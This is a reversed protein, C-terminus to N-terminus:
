ACRGREQRQRARCGSSVRPRPRRPPVEISFSVTRTAAFDEPGIVTGDPSTGFALTGAVDSPLAERLSQTSLIPGAAGRGRGGGARGRRRRRHGRAPQALHGRADSRVRSECRHLHSVGERARARVAGARRTRPRRSRGARLHLPSGARSEAVYRRLGPPERRGGRRGGSRRACLVLEAM